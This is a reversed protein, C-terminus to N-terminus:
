KFKYSNNLENSEKVNDPDDVRLSISSAGSIAKDNTVDVWIDKGKQIPPVNTGEKIVLGGRHYYLMLNCGGAEALGINVLHARLKKDDGAAVVVQRIVLDPLQASRVTRAPMTMPKLPTLQTQSAFCCSVVAVLMLPVATMPARAGKRKM